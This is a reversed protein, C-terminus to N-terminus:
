ADRLEVPIFRGRSRDPWPFRLSGHFSITSRPVRSIIQDDGGLPMPSTFAWLPATFEDSQRM